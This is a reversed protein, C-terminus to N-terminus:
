FSILTCLSVQFILTRALASEKKKNKKRSTIHGSKFSVNLSISILFRVEGFPYRLMELCLVNIRKIIYHLNIYSDFITCIFIRDIMFCWVQLM